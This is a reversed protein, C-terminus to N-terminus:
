SRKFVLNICKEETYDQILMEEDQVELKLKLSSIIYDERKLFYFM